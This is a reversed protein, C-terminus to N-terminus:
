RPFLRELETMDFTMILAQGTPRVFAVTALGVSCDCDTSPRFDTPLWLIPTTGFFIWDGRISLFSRDDSCSPDNAQLRHYGLNSKLHRGDQSFSLSDLYPGDSNVVFSDVLTRSEVNWLKVITGDTSAILRGDPSFVMDIEDLLRHKNIGGLMDNVAGSIVDWLKLIGGRSTFFVLRSNPSFAFTSGLNVRNDLEIQNKETANWVRSVWGLQSISTCALLMGDPSFIVDRLGQPVHLRRYSEGTTMSWLAVTNDTLVIALLKGDPSFVVELIAGTCNIKHCLAGTGADWLNVTQDLSASALLKNDPSFALRSVLGVHGDLMLLPAGTELNQLGIAHNYLGRAVMDEDRNFAVTHGELELRGTHTSWLKMSDTHRSTVLKSLPSITIEFAKPTDLIDYNSLSLTTMDWLDVTCGGSGSALVTSDPSFEIIRPYEGHGVLVSQPLGSVTDFLEIKDVGKAVAFLKGDPSFTPRRAKEKIDLKNRLAGTSAEWFNIGYADVSAIITDNRMFAVAQVDRSHSKFVRRLEGAVANWLRIEGDKSGSAVYKGDQSAALMHVYDRHGQLLFAILGTATNWIRVTRDDSVSVLLKGDSLFMIANVRKSHRTFIKCVEQTGLDRLKITGDLHASGLLRNDPSFSIATAVDDQIVSHTVGTKADWLRITMDLSASALLRGDPSFCVAVIEDQHGELSQLCADWNDEVVPAVKLWKVGRLFKQRLISHNPSFMLASYYIQLPSKDIIYQNRLVFRKADHVFARIQTSAAGQIQCGHTLM